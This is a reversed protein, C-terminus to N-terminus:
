ELSLTTLLRRATTAPLGAEQALRVASVSAAAYLARQEGRLARLHRRVTAVDGRRVPGTLAGAPGAAWVNELSALALPLLAARARRRSMGASALLTEAEELLAVVFNSAFVAGAHYRVKAAAPLRVPRGGLDRALRAGTRVAAADGEIAFTAGRFHGAARRPDASVTMLPHWAGTRAGARALPALVASSLAGSLHLAVQGRRWRAAALARALDRLTDDRVALLVVDAAALWPPLGGISLKVGRPVRKRRRGHVGLVTVGARRLALALGLGARGPGVIGVRV